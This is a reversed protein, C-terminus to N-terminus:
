YYVWRGPKGDLSFSDKWKYMVSAAMKESHPQAIAKGFLILFSLTLLKKM